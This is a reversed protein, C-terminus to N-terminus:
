KKWFPSLSEANLKKSLSCLDRLYKSMLINLPFKFILYVKKEKFDKCINLFRGMDDLYHRGIQINYDYNKLFEENIIETVKKWKERNDVLMPQIVSNIFGLIGLIAGIFFFINKATEM